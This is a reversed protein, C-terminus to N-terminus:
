LSLDVVDAGQSCTLLSGSSSYQMNAIKATQSSDFTSTPHFMDPAIPGSWSPGWSSEDRPHETSLGGHETSLRGHQDSLGGHETSLGGHQDRLTCGLSKLGLSPFPLTVYVRVRSSHWLPYKLGLPPLTPLHRLQPISILQPFVTLPSPFSCCLQPHLVATSRPIPIALSLVPYALPHSRTPHPQTSPPHPQTSPVQPQIKHHSSDPLTPM